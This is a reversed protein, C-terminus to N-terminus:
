EEAKEDNDEADQKLESLPLFLLLSAEGQPILVFLFPSLQSPPMDGKKNM